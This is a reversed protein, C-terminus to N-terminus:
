SEKIELPCFTRSNSYGRANGPVRTLTPKTEDCAFRNATTHPKIISKDEGSNQSTMGMALEVWNDSFYMGYYMVYHMFYWEQDFILVNFHVTTNNM